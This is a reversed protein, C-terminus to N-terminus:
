PSPKKEYASSYLRGCNRGDAKAQLLAMDATHILGEVSDADVPYVAGGISVTYAQEKKLNELLLPSGAIKKQIRDMFLLARNRTTEPLILCFEDGGYRSIVDISRVSEKLIHAFTQLLRDGAQHGYQDNVQKLEDMDFILLALSHGYRKARQFEEVMRKQFYRFNYMGTLGDTYSMEEAREFRRIHEVLPLASKWFGLLKGSNESDAREGSWALIARKNDVWPVAALYQVNDDALAALRNEPGSENNFLEAVAYVKESRGGGALLRYGDKLAKEVAEKMPWNGSLIEQVDDPAYLAIQAIKGERSLQKLLESVLQRSNKIRLLRSYEGKGFNDISTQVLTMRQQNEMRRIKKEQLRIHDAASLSYALASTFFILAPDDAALETHMLYIGALQGRTSVPFLYNFNMARIRELEPRPIIGDLFELPVLKGIRALEEKGKEALVLSFREVERSELGTWYRAGLRGRRNRLYMVRDCKLHNTLIGNIHAVIKTFDGSRSNEISAALFQGIIDGGILIKGQQYRRRRWLLIALTTSLVVLFVILTLQLM